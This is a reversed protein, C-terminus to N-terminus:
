LAFKANLALPARTNLAFELIYSEVPDLPDEPCTREISAKLLM